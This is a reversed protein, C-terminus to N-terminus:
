VGSQNFLKSSCFLCCWSTSSSSFWLNSFAHMLLCFTAPSSLKKNNKAKMKVASSNKTYSLNLRRTVFCSFCCVTSTPVTLLNSSKLRTVPQCPCCNWIRSVPCSHIAKQNFVAARLAHFCGTFSFLTFDFPAPSEQLDHSVNNSIKIIVFHYFVFLSQEKKTQSWSLLHYIHLSISETTWM